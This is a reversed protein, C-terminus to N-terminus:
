GNQNITWAKHYKVAKWVKLTRQVTGEQKGKIHKSGHGDSALLFEGRGWPLRTKRVAECWSNKVKM